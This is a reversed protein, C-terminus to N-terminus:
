KIIYYSDTFTFFKTGKSALTRMFITKHTKKHTEIHCINKSPIVIFNTMKHNQIYM